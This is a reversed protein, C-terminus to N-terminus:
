PRSHADIGHGISLLGIVVSADKVYTAWGITHSIALIGGFILVICVALATPLGWVGPKDLPNM